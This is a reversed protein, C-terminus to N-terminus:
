TFLQGSSIVHVPWGVLPRDKLLSLMPYKSILSLPITKKTEIDVLVIDANPPLRFISEPNIRTVGILTDISLKEETYAKFLLPLMLLPDSYLGASGIFDISNNKLSDWLAKQDGVTPFFTNINDPKQEEPINTTNIFLDSLAVETYILLGRKKSQKILLLEEQTRVHQFSVETSYKEAATISKVILDYATKKKADLSGNGLPDNGQDLSITVILNDQAAIQFLREFSSSDTFIAPEKALDFAIKLGSISSKVRGIAEFDGHHEGNGLYHIHLPLNSSNLAETAQRMTGTVYSVNQPAADFITSIGASLFSRASHIWATMEESSGSIPGLTADTDVLAPIMLYTGHCEITESHQSEITHNIVNGGLTKVNKLTIM